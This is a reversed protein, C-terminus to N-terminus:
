IGVRQYEDLSVEDARRDYLKTTRPSSHNAMAQAHELTGANKLYDTIGTARLSHNGIKTKIGAQRARREIMRYADPQAMRHIEGTARGTTRFLAGDKDGAIGAAAIYEDLFVELKHHCPAEHEKGGKEHLRLWGRRNQIFYDGVNMQLVAGVRAFTYIMTGILARDRLGTVSSVDIAALLARAEERDLVSTRGKRVVHKPGRVAHAPNVDLVHGVVLWDFLMRLAALHQKVSPKALESQLGEVYAAIHMPKVGALERLGKQECWDSFRCAAKYYARRTNRNRINATFFEYFRESAKSSPLFVAPVTAAIAALSRPISYPIIETSM